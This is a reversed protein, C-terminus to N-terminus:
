AGRDDQYRDRVRKKISSLSSPESGGSAERSAERVIPASSDSLAVGSDKGPSRAGDQGEPSKPGASSTEGGVGSGGAGGTSSGAAGAGGRIQQLRDALRRDRAARALEAADDAGFTPAASEPAIVPRRIGTLTRAAAVGRDATEERARRAVGAGFERSVFRDWAIRRTAIDLVLVVLAWALLVPRLPTLAEQAPIGERDFLTPAADDLNLVRGGTERAISELLARDSRLQRSEIGSSATAGAFVPAIPASGAVGKPKFVAVYAGPRDIGGVRGEYRGPGTQSLRTEIPDADSPYITAPISLDDIPRGDKDRAEVSLVLAGADHVASARYDRGTDPRSLRRALNSWFTAYVPSDIWASAWKHADSTFVAVQGLEYTWHALVPEGEPTALVNSITPESRFQSLSLGGLMPLVSVGQLLPSSSPLVVPAFAVERIMPTRVIRVTKLFVRPLLNPNSVAYYSGKGIEAMKEMGELDARDGVAIASVKIGAAAMRSAVAPVEDANQSRGDSLVIVHKVKAKVGAMQREAEELAPVVNTGGGANISRIAEQTTAPEANAGLPVLVDADSNFVIVGVLDQRDLVRVALAASENAIDQQSRASGMVSRGMSGSNDLVFIVATEPTILKDPLELKVPLLPEIPTGRWGGSALSEPGGIMVLGAGLDAVNAALLTQTGPPVADSPVNQLIVIDFAQLALLDPPIGTPPVVTVDLGSARLTEALIAGPGTPDADSVGDVLLVSGRGPTITFADGSNNDSLTDGSEAEFVARFKHVRDASAPVEIVEVRRGPLLSLRRGDGEGAPDIDIVRDGDMLRLTGRAADTANLVVRVTIPAGSPARAPADVSEVLVENRIDYEVPVVDVRVRAREGERGTSRALEAADRRANGTTQNGDSILVLRGAASPPILSAAFRLAGAIDTGESMRVDLSRGSVDLTSPSAIVISSGDFAVVGLLDDAGRQKVGASLFARARELAPLAEGPRLRRVSESVDIVAITALDNTVRVSAAGALALALLGILLTRFVIASVRRLGSMAAFYALAVLASPIALLGLWLWITDDFRISM